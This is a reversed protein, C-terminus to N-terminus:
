EARGTNNSSNLQTECIGTTLGPGPTQLFRNTLVIYDLFNVAGDNNTDFLSNTGLFEVTFLSIDLFNITCDNNFDSDCRNGYGDADTDIQLANPVNTCNDSQDPVGDLDSDIEAATSLSEDFGISDTGPGASSLNQWSITYTASDPGFVAWTADENFIRNLSSFTATGLGASTISDDLQSDPDVISTSGATDWDITWDSTPENALGDLGNQAIVLNAASSLAVEITWSSSDDEWSFTSPTARSSAGNWEIPGTINAATLTLTYDVSVSDIIMTGSITDGVNALVGSGSTSLAAHSNVTVAMLFILAVLRNNM